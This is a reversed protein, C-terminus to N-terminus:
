GKNITTDVEKSPPSPPPPCAVVVKEKVNPLALASRKLIAPSMNNTTDILTPPM